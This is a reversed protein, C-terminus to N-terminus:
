KLPWIPDVEKYKALEMVAQIEWKMLETGTLRIYADLELWSHDSLARYV